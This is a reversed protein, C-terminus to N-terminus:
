PVWLYPKTLESYSESHTTPIILWTYKHNPQLISSLEEAEVDLNVLENMNETGSTKLLHIEKEQSTVDLAFLEFDKYYKPTKISFRLGGNKTKSPSGMFEPARRPLTRYFSPPLKHGSDIARVTATIQGTDIQIWCPLPSLVDRDFYLHITLGALESGDQPWVTEYADFLALKVQKGDLFLPPVWIKRLDMEGEPPPPGIRRMKERPMPTLPLHLLTALFNDKSSRSIWSARSFSYAELIEKDKLNIEMMTWSTHGPAGEKLWEAWCISKDKPSPASIEELILTQEHSSRLALLTITKNAEWVVFDGNKARELREFLPFQSTFGTGL